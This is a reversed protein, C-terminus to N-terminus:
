EGGLGMLIGQVAAVSTSLVQKNHLDTASDVFYVKDNSDMIDVAVPQLNQGQKLLIYSARDINFVSSKPVRFASTALHPVIRIAQGFNLQCDKTIPKSWAKLFYGESVQSVEDIEIKCNQTEFSELKKADDVGIYAQVRLSNIPLVQGLKLEGASISESDPYFFYGDLPSKIIIEDESKISHILENFHRYHGYEIKNEFYTQSITLWKDNSISKQKFLKKNLDYRSKSLNYLAKASEFQEMFHHVESGSLSMVATGQKVQEGNKVLFEHRQPEFPAVLQFAEGTKHTVLAKIPRLALSDVQVVSSYKLNLQGLDEIKLSEQASLTLSLSLATLSSFFINKFNM